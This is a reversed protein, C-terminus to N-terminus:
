DEPLSGATRQFLRVQVPWHLHALDSIRDASLWPGEFDSAECSIIMEFRWGMITAAEVASAVRLAPALVADLHIELSESKVLARSELFWGNSPAPRSSRPPMDGKSITSSPVIGLLRTLDGPPRSDHRAHISVNIWRALHLNM